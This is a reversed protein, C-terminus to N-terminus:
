VPLGGTDRAALLTWFRDEVPTQPPAAPATAGWHTTVQYESQLAALVASLTAGPVPVLRAVASLQAQWRGAVCQRLRDALEAAGGTVVLLDRLRLGLVEALAASQAEDGTWRGTLEATTYGRPSMGIRAAAQAATLERALRFDRLSAPPAGMLQVAPCWLARALAIFEAEDPRFEGSEWGLVHGPLLRVGHAAMGAAVQDPTLGLGVRHARAAQPSFPVPAPAPPRSSRM